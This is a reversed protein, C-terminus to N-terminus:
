GLKMLYLIFNWLIKVKFIVHTYLPIIYKAIGELVETTPFVNAIPIILEKDNIPDLSVTRSRLPQIYDYHKQSFKIYCTSVQSIVEDWYWYKTDLDYFSTNYGLMRNFVFANDNCSMIKTNSWKVLNWLVTAHKLDNIDKYFANLAFQLCHNDKGDIEVSRFVFPKSYAVVTTNKGTEGYATKDFDSKGNKLM